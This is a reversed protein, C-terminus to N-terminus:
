GKFVGHFHGKVGFLDGLGVGLAVGACWILYEWQEAGYAFGVPEIAPLVLRDVRFGPQHLFIAYESRRVVTLLTGNPVHRLVIWLM